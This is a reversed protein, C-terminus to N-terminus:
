ANKRVISIIKQIRVIALPKLKSRKDLSGTDAYMEYFPTKKDDKHYALIEWARRLRIRQLFSLSSINNRIATEHRNFSHSNLVFRCDNSNQILVDLEGQFVTIINDGAAKINKRQIFSINLLYVLGAVLLAALSSYLPSNKIFDILEM